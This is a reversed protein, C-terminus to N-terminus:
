IKRKLKFSILNDKILGYKKAEIIVWEDPNEKKLERKLVSRKAANTYWGWDKPPHKGEQKEIDFFQSSM